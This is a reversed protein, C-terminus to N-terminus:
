PQYTVKVLISSTNGAIDTALFELQNEGEQLEYSTSFSGAIGVVLSRNNLSVSSDQDTEGEITLLRENSGFFKAGDKPSTVLLKPKETDFQIIVSPSPASENGAQDMSTLRYENNGKQLKLESFSFMGSADAITKELVVDDKKLLIESGAEAFGSLSIQASNTAEPPTNVQPPVPPLSDDLMNSGTEQSDSFFVALKTLAPISIIALIIMLILTAIGLFMAQRAFRKSEAKELRSRYRYAM